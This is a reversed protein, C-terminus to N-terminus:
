SYVERRPAVGANRHAQDLPDGAVTAFMQLEPRPSFDGIAWRHQGEM